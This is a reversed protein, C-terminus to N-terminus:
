GYSRSGEDHFARIPDYVPFHMKRIVSPAVGSYLCGTDLIIDRGPPSTWDNKSEAKAFIIEGELGTLVLQLVVQECFMWKVLM